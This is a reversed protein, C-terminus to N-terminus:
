KSCTAHLSRCDDLPDKFGFFFCRMDFEGLGQECDPLLTIGEKDRRAGPRVAAVIGIGNDLQKFGPM